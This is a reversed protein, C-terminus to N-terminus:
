EGARMHSMRGGKRFPTQFAQKTGRSGRIRYTCQHCASGSGRSAALFPKHIFIGREPEDSVALRSEIAEDPRRFLGDLQNGLRFKFFVFKM